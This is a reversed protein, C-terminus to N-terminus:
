LRKIDSSKLLERIGYTLLDKLPGFAFDANLRETWQHADRGIPGLNLVPVSLQNMADFPISYGRNWIPMNATLENMSAHKAPMGIYSLDSIGSFYHQETLDTQYVDHARKQVKKVTDQIMPRHHSQVAPYFPPTYFLIIMPALAKCQIALQDVIQISIERDDKDGREEVLADILTDVQRDGLSQRAEHILVEFTLVRVKREEATSGTLTAYQEAEKRYLAEIKEAARTAKELLLATVEEISRELLFLNFLTVSRNPIQVSYSEKLGKQILNTPPPAAKGEDEDCLDTNLELEATVLSAMLNGNLGSFPEGVHTEKGYCMFGPMLKGISGTYIYNTQDGPYLSFMPESNVAARFDLHYKEKLKLLHPVAARMGVSNVEEDPVSILLLNGDFKGECANEILSLHLALGSKMDMAGRGFLWQGSEIDERIAKPLENKAEHFRDTLNEMDFAIEKWKGYDQVDVVDFHSFLIVTKATPHSARVFASIFSRGDETPMQKLSEPHNQFYDLEALKHLVFKPFEKEAQSGSVSPIKVLESLLKTLAEKTQWKSM